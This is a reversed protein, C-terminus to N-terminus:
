FLMRIREVIYLVLYDLRRNKYKSSLSMNAIDPNENKSHNFFTWALFSTLHFSDIKRFKKNKSFTEKKNHSLKIQIAFLLFLEFM